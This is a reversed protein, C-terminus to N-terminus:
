HASILALKALIRDAYVAVVEKSLVPEQAIELLVPANTQQLIIRKSDENIPGNLILGKIKIKRRSLECFSLVTHNISGLYFNVVLILEMDLQAILDIVFDKENLPVMLGGAGEVILANDTQPLAIEKIDVAIGQKAAAAHPSEPTQLLYAEPHFQSQTNTVLAQVTDTDRPLGAQIPKWYDAKLAEVLIASALTKGSDTGIASVFYRM